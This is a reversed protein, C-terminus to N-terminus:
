CEADVAEEDASAVAGFWKPDQDKLPLYPSTRLTAPPGDQKLGTSLVLESEEHAATMASQVVRVHMACKSIVSAENDYGRALMDTVIGELLNWAGRLRFEIDDNM